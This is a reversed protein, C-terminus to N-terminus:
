NRSLGEMTIRLPQLVNQSLSTFDIGTDAGMALIKELVANMFNEYSTMCNYYGIVNNHIRLLAANAHLITFSSGILVM